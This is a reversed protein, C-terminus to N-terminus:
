VAGGGFEYSHLPHVDPADNERWIQDISRENNENTNEEDERPRLRPKGRDMIERPSQNMQDKPIFAPEGAEASKRRLVAAAAKEIKEKAKVIDVVKRLAKANAKDYKAYDHDKKGTTELKAIVEDIPKFSARMKWGGDAGHVSKDRKKAKAIRHYTKDGIFLRDKKANDRRQKPTWVNKHSRMKPIAKLKDTAWAVEELTERKAAQNISEGPDLGGGPLIFGGQPSRGVLVNGEGDHVIVDVRRRYGKHPAASNKPAKKAASKFVSRQNGQLSEVYEAAKRVGGTIPQSLRNVHQKTGPVFSLIKGSAKRALPVAAKAVEQPAMFTGYSALQPLNRVVSKAGGGIIGPLQATAKGGLEGFFVSDDVARTALNHMKLQAGPMALANSARAMHPVWSKPAVSQLGKMAKFYLAQKAHSLKTEPLASTATTGTSIASPMFKPENLQSERSFGQELAMNGRANDNEGEPEPPVTVFAPTSEPNRNDSLFAIKPIFCAAGKQATYMTPGVVQDPIPFSVPDAESEREFEDFFTSVSRGDTNIRRSDPAIDEHGIISPTEKYTTEEHFQQMADTGLIENHLQQSDEETFNSGLKLARRILGLTLRPDKKKIDKASTVAEPDPHLGPIFGPTGGQAQYAREIHELPIGAGAAIDEVPSTM